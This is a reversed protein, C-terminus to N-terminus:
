YCTIDYWSPYPSTVTHVWPSKITSGWQSLLGGSDHGSIWSLWMIRIIILWGLRLNWVIVTHISPQRCLASVRESYMCTEAQSYIFILIGAPASGGSYLNWGSLTHIVPHKCPASERGACMCIEAKSHIFVLIAATHLCASPAHVLKLRHTYSYRFAQLTCIWAKCVYVNWGTLTHIGSHCCPASRHETCTFAEAQQASAREACTCTEAHTHIFVPVGTPHLDMSQVCLCKLRNIYSYWFPQLTCVRARYMYLNWGTLTHNDTHRYPAPAREACM